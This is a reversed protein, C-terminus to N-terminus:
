KLYFFNNGTILKITHIIIASRCMTVNPGTFGLEIASHLSELCVAEVWHYGSSSCSQRQLTNLSYCFIRDAWKFRSHRPSPPCHCVSVCQCVWLSTSYFSIVLRVWRLEAWLFRHGWWWESVRSIGGPLRRNDSFLSVCYLPSRM